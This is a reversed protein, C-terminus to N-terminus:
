CSRARGGDEAEAPSAARVTRRQHLGSRMWPRDHPRLPRPDPRLDAARAVARPADHTEGGAEEMGADTGAASAARAITASLSADVAAEVGTAGAATAGTGSLVATGGVAGTGARGSESTVSVM